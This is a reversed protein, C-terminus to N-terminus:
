SDHNEDEADRETYEVDIAGHKPPTNYSDHHDTDEDSTYFHTSTFTTRKRPVILRYLAYILLLPLLIPALLQFFAILLLLIIILIFISYYNM